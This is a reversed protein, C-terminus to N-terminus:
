HGEARRVLAEMEDAVEAGERLRALWEDGTLAQWLSERRDEPVQALIRPRLRALAAAWAAWEPGIEGELREKLRKTLAPVGTSTAIIVDGERVVSPTVFDGEGPDAADCVWVGRARADAVVRANVGRTACAIALSAGELHRAEYAEKLWEVGEADDPRAELCVLRVAAGASLLARAKRRGVDGGGIVVALRGTMKLFLGFV